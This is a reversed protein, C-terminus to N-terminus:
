TQKVSWVWIAYPLIVGSDETYTTLTHTSSDVKYVSSSIWNISEM